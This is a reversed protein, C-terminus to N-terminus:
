DEEEGFKTTLPEADVGLEEQLYRSLTEISGHTVLIKKAGTEKVTRLLSAWDAHDSLVFGREYGRNRRIGRVAMWGSAFGTSVHKFRKMWPSRHASPPAIVLKGATDEGLDVVPATPVMRINQERYLKTLSEVAGHLYVTENTLAALEALVRQSKGLAYCFLLATLKEEKCWQWWDYIKRATVSSPEWEYIPLGFTAETIFGDCPVVEFPQCSPDADRKYDGSVVWVESGKEVRVQASGLIHGAPHFSVWYDRIKRKEGYPIGVVKAGQLRHRVFPAASESCWYEGSGERAHDSHAHTILNLPVPKWADIHFPTGPATLGQPGLHVMSQAM